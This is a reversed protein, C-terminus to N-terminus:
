EQKREVDEHQQAVQPEDMTEWELNDQGRSALGGESLGNASPLSLIKIGPNMRDGCINAMNSTAWERGIPPTLLSKGM